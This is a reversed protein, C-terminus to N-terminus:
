AKVHEERVFENKENYIFKSIYGEKYTPKPEKAQAETHRIPQTKWARLNYEREKAEQLKKNM